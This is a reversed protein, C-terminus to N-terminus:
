CDARGQLGKQGEGPSLAQTPRRKKKQGIRKGEEEVKWGKRVRQGGGLLEGEKEVEKERASQQIFHQQQIKITDIIMTNHVLLM